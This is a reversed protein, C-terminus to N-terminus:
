VRRGYYLHGVERGSFDAVAPLRGWREFGLKELLRISPANDELLIAFLTKIQLKPCRELCAEILARGVGRRHYAYDVYYSIEATHRVAGRGERYEGLSAWGVIEDGIQGVLVPRRAPDHRLLWDRRREVTLPETDATAEAAVAQNYIAVIAPLDDLRASRIRPTV